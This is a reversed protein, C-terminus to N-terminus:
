TGGAVAALLLAIFALLALGGVGLLVNWAHRKRSPWSSPKWTNTRAYGARRWNDEVHRRVDLVAFFAYVSFAIGFLAIVAVPLRATVQLAFSATPFEVFKAVFPLALTAALLSMLWTGMAWLQDGLQNAREEFYKWVEFRTNKIELLSDVLDKDTEECSKTETV